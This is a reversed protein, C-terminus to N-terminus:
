KKKNSTEPASNKEYAVIAKEAESLSTYAGDLVKPVSGGGDKSIKWFGYPDHSKVKFKSITRETIEPAELDFLNDTPNM